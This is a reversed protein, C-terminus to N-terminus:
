LPPPLPSLEPDTHPPLPRVPLYYVLSSHQSGPFLQTGAWYSRIGIRVGKSKISPTTHCENKRNGDRTGLLRVQPITINILICLFTRLLPVLLPTPTSNYYRIHQQQSSM